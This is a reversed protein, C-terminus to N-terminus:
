IFVCPTKYKKLGCDIFACYFWQKTQDNNFGVDIFVCYFWHKKKTKIHTLWCDIFVCHAIKSFGHITM